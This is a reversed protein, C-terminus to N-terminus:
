QQGQSTFLEMITKTTDFYRAVCRAVCKTDASSIGGQFAFCLLFLVVWQKIVQCDWLFRDDFCIRVQDHCKEFCKKAVISVQKQHALQLKANQLRQLDGQTLGGSNSEYGNDYSGSNSGYSSGSSGFSSGSYGAVFHVFEVVRM